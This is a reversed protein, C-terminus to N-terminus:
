KTSWHRYLGICILLFMAIRLGVTLNFFLFTTTEEFTFFNIVVRFPIHGVYYLLLGCSFWFYLNNILKGISGESLILVFYFFVIISLFLSAIIHSITLNEFRIDLFYISEFFVIILYFLYGFVIIRQYRNDLLRNYLFFFICFSVLDYINYVGLVNQIGTINRFYHLFTSTGEVFVSIMLFVLLLKFEQDRKGKSFILIAFVFATIEIGLNLNNLIEYLEM